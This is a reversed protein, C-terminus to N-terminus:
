ITCDCDACHISGIYLHVLLNTSFVHKNEAHARVLDNLMLVSMIIVWHVNVIIISIYLSNYVLHYIAGVCWIVM